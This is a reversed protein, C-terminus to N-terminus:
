FLFFGQIEIYVTSVSATCHLYYGSSFSHLVIFTLYKKRINSLVLIKISLSYRLPCPPIIM